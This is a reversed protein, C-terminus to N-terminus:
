KATVRRKQEPTLVQEYVLKYTEVNAISREPTNNIKGYEPLGASVAITNCPVSSLHVWMMKKEEMKKEGL